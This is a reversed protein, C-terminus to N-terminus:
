TLLLLIGGLITFALIIAITISTVADIEYKPRPRPKRRPNPTKNYARDLYEEFSIKEGSSKWLDYSCNFEEETM